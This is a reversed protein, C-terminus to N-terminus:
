ISYLHITSLEIFDHFQHPEDTTSKGGGGGSKSRVVGSKPVVESDVWNPPRNLHLKLTYSDVVEIKEFIAELLDRKQVRNLNKFEQAYKSIKDKADTLQHTNLYETILLEKTTILNTFTSKTTELENLKKAFTEIALNNLSSIEKFTFLKNITLDLDKM